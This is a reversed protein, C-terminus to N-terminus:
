DRWMMRLIEDVLPSDTVDLEWFGENDPSADRYRVSGVRADQVLTILDDLDGRGIEMPFYVDIPAIREGDELHNLIMYELEQALAPNTSRVSAAYAALAVRAHPDYPRLLFTPGEVESDDDTRTITYKKYYGMPDPTYKDKMRRNRKKPRSPTARITLPDLSYEAFKSAIETSAKIQFPFLEKKIITQRPRVKKDIEQATRKGTRRMARSDTHTFKKDAPDPMSISIRYPIGKYEFMIHCRNEDNASMTKTVGFRAFLGLIEGMSKSASVTTQAAYSSSPM